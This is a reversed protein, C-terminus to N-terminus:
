TKTYVKKEFYEENTKRFTEAKWGDFKMRYYHMETYSKDKEHEHMAIIEMLERLNANSGAYAKAQTVSTHAEESVFNGAKKFELLSENKKLESNHYAYDLGHKRYNELYSEAQEDSLKM